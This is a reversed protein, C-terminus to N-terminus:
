DCFFCDSDDKCDVGVERVVGVLVGAEVGVGEDVGM